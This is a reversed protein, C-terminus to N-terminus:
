RQDEWRKSIRVIALNAEATEARLLARRLERRLRRKELFDLVAVVALAILCPTESM